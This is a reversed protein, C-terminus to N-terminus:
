KNKQIRKLREENMPQYCNKRRTSYSCLGCNKCEFPITSVWERFSAAYKKVWEFIAEDALDRGAQESRCWKYIEIQRKQEQNILRVQEKVM